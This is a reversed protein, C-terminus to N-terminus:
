KNLKQAQRITILGVGAITLTGGILISITLKEDLFLVSIIVAFLPVALTLPVLQNLPYKVMLKQWIIHSISMIVAQYFLVISILTWNLNKVQLM